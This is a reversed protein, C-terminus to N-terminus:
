NDISSTDAPVHVGQHELRALRHYFTSRPWGLLRAAATRNGRTQRLADLMQRVEHDSVLARAPPPPVGQSPLEAVIDTLKLIPGGARIAAGEITAKLQRVNGPWRHAQLHAMAERSISQVALGHTARARHLFVGALLPIDDQRLRLPPIRLRVVRIRYLLDDRFRGSAVEAELNRHTAALLRVDIPRPKSEGLRLIERQELVRLLHTQVGIPMDGIEDLLLTGGNASEFLGVHDSVASTFAGRRHGFLQSALLSETLGACNIAVFPRHKRHSAAHIARAVLEKGTGTEGEILVTADVDAIRGIEARLDCMAISEGLLDAGVGGPAAQLAHKLDVTQTVDYLHLVRENQDKPNPHVEIEAWFHQGSPPVLETTVRTGAQPSRIQARINALSEASVPLVRDLPLGILSELVDGCVLPRTAESLFRVRGDVDVLIVGVRLQNFTALLDAHSKELSAKAAKLDEREAHLEATREAVTTELARARRALGRLRLRVGFILAMVAAIASALKFSWRQYFYPELVIGLRAVRDSWGGAPSRATVEFQYTGPPLSAFHAIRRPGVDTWTDDHGVLRYKFHLLEARTPAAAGYRIEVDGAGPRVTIADRNPQEIGNVRVSEITTVPAPANTAIVSPDLRVLGGQSPFWLLGDRTGVGAPHGMGNCEANIMGDGDDIIDVRPSGPEGNAIAVLDGRRVRRIGRDGSLWFYGRDDELIRHVSVDLLGGLSGYAAARGDKWRALGGGYTGIWLAADRDLYLARVEGAPIGNGQGYAVFRDHQYQVAGRDTGIWLSGGAGAIITSIHNSGLGDQAHWTRWAGHQYRALGDNTAVWLAEDGDRYLSRIETLGPRFPGDITIFRGDVFRVLRGHFTGILLEGEPLPLLASIFTPANPERVYPRIRGDKLALLGVGDGDCLTAFWLTGDSGEAVASINDCPLGQKSGFTEVRRRTLRHLGAPGNGVGYWIQGAIDQALSFVARPDLLEAVAGSAVARSPTRTMLRDSCGIWLVGDRDVLLARVFVRGLADPEATMRGTAPDLQALGHTTGVWLRGTPDTALATIITDPMNVPVIVARLTRDRWEILQGSSALWLSGRLDVVAATIPGTVRDIPLITWQGNTERRYVQDPGIALLEGGSGACFMSVARDGFVEERTFVGARYRVLGATTGIWLTGDASEHLSIVRNSRLAPTNARDFVSFLLGDFRVLGNNAIMWLNGDRSTVLKPVLNQPLGQQVTWVQHVYGPIDPESACAERSDLLLAFVCVLLGSYRAIAPLRPFRSSSFLVGFM